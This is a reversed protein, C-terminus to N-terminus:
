DIAKGSMAGWFMKTKIVIEYKKRVAVVYNYVYSLIFNWWTMYKSSYICNHTRLQSLIFTQPRLHFVNWSLASIKISGWVCTWIDASSDSNLFTAKKYTKM